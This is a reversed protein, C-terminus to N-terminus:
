MVGIEWTPLTALAPCAQYPPKDIDAAQIGVPEPLYLMGVLRVEGEAHLESVLEHLTQWRISPRLACCVRGRSTFCQSLFMVREQGWRPTIANVAAMLRVAPDIGLVDAGLAANMEADTCAEGSIM